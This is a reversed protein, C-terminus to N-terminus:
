AAERELPHVFLRVSPTTGAPAWAKVASLDVVQSDDPILQWGERPSLGDLTSRTLKDVDGLQHATPYAPATDRLQGRLYHLRPRVFLFAVVVRIGIDRPYTRGRAAHRATTTVLDRYGDVRTSSELLLPVRRGTRRSTVHGKYAKSGQPAAQMPVTFEVSGLPERTTSM